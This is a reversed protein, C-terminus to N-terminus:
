PAALAAPERMPAIVHDIMRRLNGLQERYEAEPAAGFQQALIQRLESRLPEELLELYGARYGASSPPAPFEALTRARLAMFGRMARILSGDRLSKPHHRMLYWLVRAPSIAHIARAYQLRFGQAVLRNPPHPYESEAKPRHAGTAELMRIMDVGQDSPSGGCALSVLALRRCEACQSCARSTGTGSWCSCQLDALDRYRRTVIEQVMSSQLSGTLSGLKLGLPRMLASMAAQTLASYMFHSHQLYVGDRIANLSVENESALFLRSAGRAYGVVALAATYLFTDAMENLSLPYGWRRSLLNDWTGRFDSTVEALELGRRRQVEALARARFSSVELCSMPHPSTTTVLLPPRRMECLLGVQALSDKGGSFAAACDLRDPLPDARPLVEDGDVITVDGTMPTGTGIADLTYAHCQLLRLWTDKSGPDMRVPIRVVCPRLLPWHAHLCMVMVHWWLRAPVGAIPISEPFKLQFRTERYLGSPRSEQWSFMARQGDVKPHFLAVELPSERKFTM